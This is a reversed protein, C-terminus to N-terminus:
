GTIDVGIIAGVAHVGIESLEEAEFANPLAGGEMWLGDVLANCAIALQRLVHGTAPRGAEQLTDAILGELRDRFDHYTREHIVQMEPDDRLANLFGAWLLVAGPDTVPPKLGAEIFAALRVRASGSNVSASAATIETLSRMHFEYAAKILEEKTTFYHRILGQTVEAREAIARVTAGRVGQEAILSLTANILAEKRQGATERRFKATRDSM